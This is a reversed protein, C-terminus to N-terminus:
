GDALSVLMKGLNAGSFLGILAEPAKEIGQVSTEQSFLQGATRWERMQRVFPQHYETMYDLVVFGKMTIGLTVVKFLNKVGERQEPPTNYDAISGCLIARSNKRMNMLAADLQAGGVNDFLLDIGKPCSRALAATLDTVKHYNFAADIKARDLLWHIKEDSGASGIVTCGLAKAIQCVISGVAGAAGTVYVRDGAQAAGLVVSGVYATIGPMGLVGLYDQPAIGDTDRIGLGKGDSIFYERWGNMSEVHAGVRFKEHRSAIVRGIAGGELPQNLQFPPIYSKVDNMRPRMYPDVSMWLNKVLVQGEALRDSVETKVLRFCDPTPTTAPRKVLHIERSIM